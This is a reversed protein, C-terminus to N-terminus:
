GASSPTAPPPLSHAGIRQGSGGGDCLIVCRNVLVNYSFKVLPLTDRSQTVSGPRYNDSLIFDNAVFELLVVTSTM